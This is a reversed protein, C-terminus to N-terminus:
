YPGSLPVLGGDSPRKADVLANVRRQQAGPSVTEILGGEGDEDFTSQEFLYLEGRAWTWAIRTADLAAQDDSGDLEEVSAEVEGTLPGVFRRVAAIEEGRILREDIMAVEPETMAVRATSERLGVRLFARQDVAELDFLTLHDGPRAREIYRLFDRNSTFVVETRNSGGAFFYHWGFVVAASNGAFVESVVALNLSSFLNHDPRDQWGDLDLPYTTPM